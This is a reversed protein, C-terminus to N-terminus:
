VDREVPGREVPPFLDLVPTRFGPLLDGANLADGARFIQSEGAGPRFSHVERSLPYVVWVLRVGANLYELVKSNLEEASDTPSVVEAVLDPVVEFANGRAPIPRTRPWQEYSVYSVDPRRSRTEDDSSPFRYLLEVGSRGVDNTKLHFGMELNLRNAVLCAYLSMNPLEVIEGNVVEFLDPLAAQGPASTPTELVTSV